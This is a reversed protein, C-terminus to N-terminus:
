PAAGKTLLAILGDAVSGRWVVFDHGGNYEHYTVAYGKAELVDRLRLTEGRMNAIGGPGAHKEFRGVELYFRIAKKPAAVYERTLWGPQAEWPPRQNARAFKDDRDAEPYWWFAGSQSLVNGFLEPHRLAQYAAALGGRSFGCVVARRPDSSVKYHEHAWPVLEKGVFEAFPPSCGLDRDRTEGSEVLVAVLPDIKRRDLLNDLVDPLPIVAEGKEDAAYAEGDFVVMLGCEPGKPDYGPPTYVTVRRDAALAKSKLTKAELKGRAVGERRGFWPQPPAAPLEVYSMEAHVRPNLPDTKTKTKPDYRTAGVLFVYGFRADKPTRETLFYVDSGPLRALYKHEINVFPVGGFLFVSEADRGGRWLYTVRVDRDDGPIPEVLPAKGAVDRWFKEVATADGDALAKRLAAIAASKPPPEGPTDGTAVAAAGTLSAAAILLTLATRM